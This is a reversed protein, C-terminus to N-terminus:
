RINFPQMRASHFDKKLTQGAEGISSIDDMTLEASNLLKDLHSLKISLM